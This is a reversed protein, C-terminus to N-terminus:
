TSIGEPSKHDWIDAWNKTFEKKMIAILEKEPPTVNKRGTLVGYEFSENEAIPVKRCGPVLPPIMYEPLITIGYGSRALTLCTQEGTCEIDRYHGAHITLLDRIVNSSHFPIMREPLLLLTKEKLDEFSIEDKASLADSEPILAYSNLRGLATFLLDGEEKLVYRSGMMLDLEGNKLLLLNKTYDDIRLTPIIHPRKKRFTFLTHTIWDLEESSLCGIRIQRQENQMGAHKKAEEVARIIEQADYYFVKGAETLQVRHRNRIFLPSDLEEELNQIHRTVTAVSVYQREAAKSFSLTDAVSLFSRIEQSNM